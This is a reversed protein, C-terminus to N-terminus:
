STSTLWGAAEITLGAIVQRVKAFLKIIKRSSL